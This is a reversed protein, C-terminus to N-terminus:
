QIVVILWDRLGAADVLTALSRFPLLLPVQDSYIVRTGVLVSRSKVM